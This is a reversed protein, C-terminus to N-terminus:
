IGSSRNVQNRTYAYSSIHLNNQTSGMLTPTIILIIIIVIIKILSKM